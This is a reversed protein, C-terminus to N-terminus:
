YFTTILSLRIIEERSSVFIGGVAHTLLLLLAKFCSKMYDETFCQRFVTEYAFCTM